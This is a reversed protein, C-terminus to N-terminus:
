TPLPDSCSGAFTLLEVGDGTPSLMLIGNLSGNVNSSTFVIGFPILESSIFSPIGRKGLAKDFFDLDIFDFCAATAFTHRFKIHEDNIHEQIRICKISKLTM